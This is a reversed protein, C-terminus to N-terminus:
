RVNDFWPDALIERASARAAPDLVLMKEVLEGMKWADETSWSEQRPCCDQFQAQITYEDDSDEWVQLSINMKKAKQQWQEPIKGGITSLIERVHAPSSLLGEFPPHGTALEFIMCGMNWIDVRQDLKDGFIIAPARVVLPQDLNEPATEKSRFAQGFDIIKIPMSDFPQKPFIARRVIYEPLTPDVCKKRNLTFTSIEQKGLQQCFEKEDIHDTYPLAFAFNGTHLDGHLIGQKHLRDLGQLVKGPLRGEPLHEKCLEQVGQGVLEIGICHHSGYPGSTSFNDLVQLLHRTGPCRDSQDDEVLASLIKVEQDAKDDAKTIKLAFYREDRVICTHHARIERPGYLVSYALDSSTCSKVIGIKPFIAWGPLCTAVPGTLIALSLTTSVSIM